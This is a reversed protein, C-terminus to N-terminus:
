MTTLKGKKKRNRGGKIEGSGGILLIKRGIYLQRSQM